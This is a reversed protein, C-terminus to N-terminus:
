GLLRGLDQAVAKVGEKPTMLLRTRGDRDFVFIASSHYVEYNGQGDPKGYSYAVRYRKSLTGLQDQTGTLGVIQPGFERAYAKLVAPTDRKPDVSVFLVRVQDARAGLRAIAQALTSLTTPCVDTCHTFGFYLLSVKGKYDSAHVSHGDENTLTFRLDPMVGDISTSHWNEGGSSCGALLAALALCLAPLHRYPYRRM